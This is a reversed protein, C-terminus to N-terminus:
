RHFLIRRIVVSLCMIVLLVATLMEYKAGREVLQPFDGVDSYIINNGVNVSSDAIENVYYKYQNNYGSGTTSYEYEKGSGYLTIVGNDYELDGVLMTYSYQGSRFAVYNQNFGIGSVIDKFYQTYTTSLTGEDYVNYTQAQATGCFATILVLVCFLCSIKRGM